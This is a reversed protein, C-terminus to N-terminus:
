LKQMFLLKYPSVSDATTTPRYCDCEVMWSARSLSQLLVFMWNILRHLGTIGWKVTFLQSYEVKGLLVAHQLQLRVGHVFVFSTDPKATVVGAVVFINQHNKPCLYGFCCQIQIKLIIQWVYKESFFTLINRQHWHHLSSQMILKVVFTRFIYVGRVVYM